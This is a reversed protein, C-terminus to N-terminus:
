HLGFRQADKTAADAKTIQPNGGSLLTPKSKKAM